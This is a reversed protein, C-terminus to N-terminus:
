MQFACGCGNCDALLFSLVLCELAHCSLLFFLTLCVLCPFLKACRIVSRLGFLGVRLTM